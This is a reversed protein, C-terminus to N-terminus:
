RPPCAALCLWGPATRSQAPHYSPSPIATVDGNLFSMEGFIAGEYLTLIKVSQMLQTDENFKQVEVAVKGKVLHYLTGHRTGNEIIVDGPKYKELGAQELLSALAAKADVTGSAAGAAGQAHPNMSFALAPSMLGSGRRGQRGRATGSGDASEEGAKAFVLQWQARCRHIAEYAANVHLPYFTVQATSHLAHVTLAPEHFATSPRPLGRFSM